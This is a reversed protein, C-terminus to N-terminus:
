YTHEFRIFYLTKISNIKNLIKDTSINLFKLVMLDIGYTVGCYYFFIMRENDIYYFVKKTLIINIYEKVESITTTIPNIYKYKLKPKFRNYVIDNFKNIGNIYETRDELKRFRGILTTIM